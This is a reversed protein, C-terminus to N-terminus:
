QAEASGGPPGDRSARRRAQSCEQVDLAVAIGSRRADSARGTRGLRDGADSGERDVTQSGRGSTPGATPAAAGDTPPTRDGEARADRVLHAQGPNRDGGNGSREWGARTGKGRM